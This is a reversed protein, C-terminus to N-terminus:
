AIVIVIKIQKYYQEHHAAATASTYRAYDVLYARAASDQGYHKNEKQAIAAFIFAYTAAATETAAAAFLNKKTCIEPSGREARYGRIM